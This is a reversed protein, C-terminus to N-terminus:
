EALWEDSERKVEEDTYYKGEKIQIQAERVESLEDGSLQYVKGREYNSLELLNLVDTLMTENESGSIETIIREKLEATSM